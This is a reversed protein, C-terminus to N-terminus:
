LKAQLLICQTTLSSPFPINCLALVMQTNRHNRNPWHPVSFLPPPQPADTHIPVAHEVDGTGDSLPPLLLTPHSRSSEQVLTGAGGLCRVQAQVSVPSYVSVVGFAPAPACRQLPLLVCFMYASQCASWTNLSTIYFGFSSTSM